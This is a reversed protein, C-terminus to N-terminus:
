EIPYPRALVKSQEVGFNMNVNKRGPQLNFRFYVNGHTDPFIKQIQIGIDALKKEQESTM